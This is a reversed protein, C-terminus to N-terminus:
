KEYRRKLILCGESDLKPVSKYESIFGIINFHSFSDPCIGILHFLNDIM